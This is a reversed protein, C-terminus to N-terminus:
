RDANMNVSTMKKQRWNEYKIQYSNSAHKSKLQDNTM